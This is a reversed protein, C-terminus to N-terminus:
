RRQDDRSWRRMQNPRLMFQEAQRYTRLTDTHTSAAEGLAIGPREDVTSVVTVALRNPATHPEDHQRRWREEASHKGPPVNARKTPSIPYRRSLRAKAAPNHASEEVRRTRTLSERLGATCDAYRQDHSVSADRRPPKKALRTPGIRSEPRLEDAIRRSRM